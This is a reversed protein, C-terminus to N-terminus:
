VGQEPLPYCQMLLSILSFLALNTYCSILSCHTIGWDLLKQFFEVSIVRAGHTYIAVTGTTEGHTHRHSRIASEGRKMWSVTTLTFRTVLTKVTM